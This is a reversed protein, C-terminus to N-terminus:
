NKLPHIYQSSIASKLFFDNILKCLTRVPGCFALSEGGVNICVFTKNISLMKNRWAVYRVTKIQPREM